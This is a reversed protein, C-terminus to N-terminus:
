AYAPERASTVFSLNGTKGSSTEEELDLPLCIGTDHHNHPDTLFQTTLSQHSRCTPPAKHSGAAGAGSDM